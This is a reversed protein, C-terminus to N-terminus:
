PKDGLTILKTITGMRNMFEHVVLEEVYFEGGHDIELRYTGPNLIITYSHEDNPRYDGIMEDNADYVSLFDADVYTKTSDDMEVVLKIDFLAPRVEVTNFTVRYIDLDGEGGERVTSIYAHKQDNAFSISRDDMGTNLPYGLNEPTGFEATEPDWEVKYLDFGGMGPHGESSFYLTKGDPSFSPFDESGTTNIQEGLNYPLGWEGNPLKRVMWLDLKGISGKKDTSFIIISRDPSITAASELQKPDLIPELDQKRGLRTGNVDVTYIDIGPKMDSYLIMLEGDLTFGTCQENYKSNIGNAEQAPSFGKGDFETMYVQSSYYGDYELVAQREKRRTTYALLTEDGKIFPYYDPFESNINPGMNEYTLNLPDKMQEIAFQCDVMAKKAEEEMKSSRNMYEKLQEIAKEYESHIMYARALYYFAEDDVKEHEVAKELYSLAFKPNINTELYCIGLNMNFEPSERDGKLLTQYEPIAMVYNGKKFFESAVRPDIQGRVFSGLLLAIIILISRM